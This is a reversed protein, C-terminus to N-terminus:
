SATRKRRARIEDLVVKAAALSAALAAAKLAKRTIEKATTRGIRVARRGVSAMLKTELKDYTQRVRGRKKRVAKKTLKAM